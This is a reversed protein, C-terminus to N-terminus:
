NIQYQTNQQEEGKKKQLHTTTHYLKIYKHLPPFTIIQAILLYNKLQAMQSTYTNANIISTQPIIKCQPKKQM